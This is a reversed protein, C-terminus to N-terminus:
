CSCTFFCSAEKPSKGTVVEYHKWFEPFEDWRAKYSETDDRTWGDGWGDTENEIWREAADMLRGSTYGMAAAFDAIWAKAVEIPDTPTPKAAGEASFSPHSWVHRLGTISLPYLFLFFRQGVAVYGKLFPDVVGIATVIDNPQMVEDTSGPVLGIHDGPKLIQAAVVPAVAVHVADRGQPTDHIQGLKATDSV